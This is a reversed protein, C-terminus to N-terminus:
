DTAMDSSKNEDPKVFHMTYAIANGFRQVEHFGAAQAFRRVTSRRQFHPDFILETVSLIGGPKLAAFIENVALQREPIEGLVTVLLVRDFVGRQLSGQGAAAQVFEINNFGCQRAKAKTIELMGAQIDLAVVRGQPGTMEALPITLRGPGCGMDLVSM